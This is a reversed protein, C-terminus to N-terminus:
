LTLRLLAIAIPVPDRWLGHAAHCVGAPVQALRVSMPPTPPAALWVAGLADFPPKFTAVSAPKDSCLEACALDIAPLPDIPQDGAGAAQAPAHSLGAGPHRHVSGVAAGATSGAVLGDASGHASGHAPRLGPTVFCASTSSWGLALCWLLLTHAALHRLRKRDGFM